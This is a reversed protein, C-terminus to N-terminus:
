ILQLTYLSIIYIIFIILNMVLISINRLTISKIPRKIDDNRNWYLCYKKYLTKIQNKFLFPIFLLIRNIILCIFYQTLNKPIYILFSLLTLYLSAYMIMFIDIIQIQNKYLIKLIFYIAFIFLIYFLLEYRIIMIFIIYILSLLVFLKIRKYKIDKLISIFLTFYFIEPILGLLISLLFNM